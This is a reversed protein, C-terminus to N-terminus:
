LGQRIFKINHWPVFYRTPVGSLLFDFLVGAEQMDLQTPEFSTLGSLDGITEVVLDDAGEDFGYDNVNTV